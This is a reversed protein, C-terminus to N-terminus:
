GRAVPQENQGYWARRSGFHGRGSPARVSTGEPYAAKGLSITLGGRGHASFTKLMWRQVTIGDPPWEAAISSRSARARSIRSNKLGSRQGAAPAAWATADCGGDGAPWHGGRWRPPRARRPPWAPLRAPYGAREPWRDGRRQAGWAAPPM